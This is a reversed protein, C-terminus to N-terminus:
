GQPLTVPIAYDWLPTETGSADDCPVLLMVEPREPLPGLNLDVDYALTGDAQEQFGTDCTVVAKTQLRVPERNEDYCAFNRYIRRIDDNTFAGEMPTISLRIVTSFPTARVETFTVRVRGDDIAPNQTEARVAAEGGADLPFDLTFSDLATM